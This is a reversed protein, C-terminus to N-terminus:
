RKRPARRNKTKPNGSNKKRKKAGPTIGIHPDGEMIAGVIRSAVQEFDSRDAGLYLWKGLVPHPQLEPFKRMLTEHHQRSTPVLLGNWPPASDALVAVMLGDYYCALCGFMRRELYSPAEALPELLWHHENRYDQLRASMFFERIAGLYLGLTTDRESHFFCCLFFNECSSRSLVPRRGGFLHLWGGQGLGAGSVETGATASALM